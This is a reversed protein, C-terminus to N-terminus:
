RPELRPLLGNAQMDAFRGAMSPPYSYKRIESARFPWDGTELGHAIQDIGHRNLIRAWYLAEEDVELPVPEYPETTQIFTLICSSASMGFVQEAGEVALAMQMPYQNDTSARQASLELDASKPSFTKLDGFDYANDPICDPRSKIWLGTAADQWVMSVETLGGTLSTVAEPCRQLNESMYKIKEVQAETLFDRGAAKADWEEWFEARPKASDSWVGDREFAAIQIKTPRQPADGPVYCFQEDFVEDGLILCHAARGLVLFESPPKEPYRDPNLSSSMWFSHPSKKIVERIGSSSISPGDCCQDHYWNMSMRYAGPETIIDGDEITRIKPAM